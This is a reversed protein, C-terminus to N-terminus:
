PKRTRLGHRQYHALRQRAYEGTVNVGDFTQHRPATPDPRRARYVSATRGPRQTRRRWRRRIRAVLDFRKEAAIIPSVAALLLKALEM